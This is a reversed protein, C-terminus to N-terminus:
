REIVLPKVQRYEGAEIGYFYRGSPLDAISFRVTYRGGQLPADLPRLVERGNIDWVRLIARVDELQQYTVEVVSGAPNPTAPELLNRYKGLTVGTIICRDTIRITASDACSGVVIGSRTTLVSDLRLSVDEDPGALLRFRLRLQQPRLQLVGRQRLRIVGALPDDSLITVTDEAEAGLLQLRRADYGILYTLDSASDLAGPRLVDLPIVITDGVLGTYHGDICFLLTDVESGIGRGSLPMATTFGCPASLSVSPTLEYGGSLLPAFQIDLLLSDGPALDVPLPRDTGLLTFPQVINAISDIRIPVPLTDRLVITARKGTGITVDGFAGGEVALKAEVIRGALPIRLTDNCPGLVVELVGHFDGVTGTSLRIPVRIGSNAPIQEGRVSSDVEFVPDGLVRVELVKADILSSGKNSITAFSDIASSMCGLRAPFIVEEENFTLVNGQKFGHLQLRISDRCPQSFLALLENSEGPQRPQFHLYLKVSDNAAVIFPLTPRLLSVGDTSAISDIEVPVDSRNYIVLSDNRSSECESLTGFEITTTGPELLPDDRRGQLLLRLTDSCEGARYPILVVVSDRQRGQPAYRFSFKLSDGGQVIAPFPDSSTFPSSLLPTEIIISGNGLNRLEVSSDAWAEKGICGAILGFDVSSSGLQLSDSLLRVGHLRISDRLACPSGALSLLTDFTGSESGPDFRLRLVRAGNPPIVLPLLDTITFGRGILLDGSITIPVTGTNRLIITTDAGDACASLPTFALDNEVIDFGASDSTGEVPIRQPRDCEDITILLTDRFTGARLPQFRLRFGLPVSASTLVQPLLRDVSTVSFVGSATAFRYGRVTVTGSGKNSINITTDAREQACSLVNRFRLASPANIAPDVRTGTIAIAFPNKGALSDNSYILLTDTIDNPTTSVFRIIYRVSDGKRITLGSGLETNTPTVLQFSPKSLAFANARIVLDADGANAVYFTDLRVSDCRLTDLRLVVPASISPRLDFNFRMVFADSQSTNGTDNLKRDFPLRSLPFDNSRTGGTVLLDGYRGLVSSHWLTDDESGGIVSSHLISQGNPGLELFVVDLRGRPSATFADSTIDFGSSNTIGSLYANGNRDVQVGTARGNDNPGIYRSYAIQSEDQARIKTVFWSGQSVGTITLPYNPSNTVGAIYTNRASDVAISTPQDQGSGGILTSYELILNTLQPRFRAVFCDRGGSNVGSYTVTTTPFSTSASWGTVYAAGGPDVVIAKGEEDAEGGLYTSYILTDGTPNLKAVFADEGGGKSSAYTGATVPFDSSRTWGVVFANGRRDIALDEIHDEGSGGLYTAYRLRGGDPELALVFGDYGSHPTSPVSPSTPNKGPFDNEDSSSTTGAVIAVGGATVRIASADDSGVGGIYTGYILRSGTPDLKVVFIDTSSRELSRDYAGFTTPLNESRTTGTVYINGSTDVAVGRGGDGLSGGLYSSYILEPDIVLPRSRDYEGIAFGLGRADCLFRAEVQRREDGIMQYCYPKAERLTGVSTGIALSGDPEIRLDDAGDYLFRVADPDAGSAVVLDYKLSGEHEYYRATVGRYIERYEVESYGAVDSMSRRGVTRDGQLFSWRENKMGAGQVSGIMAGVFRQRLRHGRDDTPHLDYVAGEDTFWVNMGRRDLM